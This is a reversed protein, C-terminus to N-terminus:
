AVRGCCHHRMSERPQCGIYGLGSVNFFFFFFGAEWVGIIIFKVMFLNVEESSTGGVQRLRV